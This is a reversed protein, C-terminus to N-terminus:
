KEGVEGLNEILKKLARLYSGVEEAGKETIEIVTRQRDAIIKKIVVYGEKELKKLHSDLNGPTIELITMLERFLVKERPLLYLMISLRVPNGLAHNEILERFM